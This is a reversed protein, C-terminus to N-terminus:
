FAKGLSILFFATEEESFAVSASCTFREDLPVVYIGGGYGKHWYNSHENNM